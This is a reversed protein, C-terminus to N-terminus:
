PPDYIVLALHKFFWKVLRRSRLAVNFNRLLVIFPVAVWMAYHVVFQSRRASRLFDNAVGVFM